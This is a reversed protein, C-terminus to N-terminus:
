CEQFTPSLRSVVKIFNGEARRKAYDGFVVKGDATPGFGGVGLNPTVGRKEMAGLVDQWPKGQVCALTRAGAEAGGCGLKQSLMYWSASVNRAPGGLNAATGSEAIIGNVIPDKTWAYAYYDVSAGGASQGFLTIKEPDGGFRAVNDRVWEVGLRQDLLGVNQAPLFDARPFGFVNVRYNISVVV